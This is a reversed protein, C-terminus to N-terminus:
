SRLVPAVCLTFGFRPLAPPPLPPPAPPPPLAPPPPPPPPRPPRPLTILVGVSCPSIECNLQFEGIRREGCLGDVTSTPPRCSKMERSRPSVHVILLDSPLFM